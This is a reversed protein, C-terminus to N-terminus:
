TVSNHVELSNDSASNSSHTRSKRMTFHLIYKDPCDTLSGAVHKKFPTLFHFDSPELDSSYPPHALSYPPHALIYPPHAM